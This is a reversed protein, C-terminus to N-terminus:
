GDVLDAFVARIEPSADALRRRMREAIDGPEDGKDRFAMSWYGFERDDVQRDTLIEVDRHRPDCGIREFTPRVSEDPGELVQMFRRGDSWLLGTVGDIANNHRSQELIRHLDAPADEGVTRSVYIIQRMMGAAYGCEPPGAM